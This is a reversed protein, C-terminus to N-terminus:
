WTICPVGANTSWGVRGLRSLRAAVTIIRERNDLARDGRSTGLRATMDYFATVGM